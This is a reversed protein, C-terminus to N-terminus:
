AKKSGCSASSAPEGASLIREADEPSMSGEAVYAAVERRTSERQKTRSASVIMSSVIAVLAIIIGGVIAVLPILDQAQLVETHM